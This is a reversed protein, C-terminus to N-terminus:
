QLVSNSQELNVTRCETGSHSLPLGVLSMYDLGVYALLCESM